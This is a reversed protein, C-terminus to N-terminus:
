AGALTSLWLRLTDALASRLRVWQSFVGGPTVVIAAEASAERVSLYQRLAVAYMLNQQREPTALFYAEAMQEEHKSLVGFVFDDTLEDEVILLEELYKEDALLRLEVEEQGREDLAGLLYKKVLEERELVQEM